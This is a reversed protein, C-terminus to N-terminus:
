GRRGALARHSTSAAVASQLGGHAPFIPLHQRKPVPAPAAYRLRQVLAEEIMRTLSTQQKEALLKDQTLLIDDIEITTRMDFVRNLACCTWGGVM